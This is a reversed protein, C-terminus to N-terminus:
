SAPPNPLTLHFGLNFLLRLLLQVGSGTPCPTKGATFLRYSKGFIACHHIMFLKHKCPRALGSGSCFFGRIFFFSSVRLSAVCLTLVRLLASFCGCGAKAWEGALPFQVGRGNLVFPHGKIGYFLVSQVITVQHHPRTTALSRFFFIRNGYVCIGM